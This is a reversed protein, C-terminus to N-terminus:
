FMVTLATALIPCRMITSAILTVLHYYIHYLSLEHIHYVETLHRFNQSFNSLYLIGWLPHGKFIKVILACLLHHVDGDVGLM